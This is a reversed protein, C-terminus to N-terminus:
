KVDAAGVIEAILPKKKPKEEPPPNTALKLAKVVEPTPLLVDAIEMRDILEEEISCAELRDALRKEYKPKIHKEWIKIDDERRARDKKNLRIRVWYPVKNLGPTFIVAEGPRRQELEAPTVLPVKYRHTQGRERTIKEVEGCRDSIAKSTEWDNAEFYISTGMNAQNSQSEHKTMHMLLQAENQFAAVLLFWYSRYESLWQGMNPQTMSALEDAILVFPAERKLGSGCSAKVILDIAAAISPISIEEREKDVQFFVAKKGDLQLPIDDYILAQISKESMLQKIDLVSSGIVGAVTQAADAISRLGTSSLKAWIGLDGAENAIKLRAALGPLSLFAFAMVFDPFCTAKAFLCAVELAAKGQGGFFPDGSKKARGSLNEHYTNIVSYAGDVDSPSKMKKLPNLGDYPYVWVEYGLRMLHACHAPTLDGKKDYVLLTAGQEALDDIISSIASETKGGSSKGIIKCGPALTPLLVQTRNGHRDSGLGVAINPAKKSRMENVAKRRCCWIEFANAWRANGLVRHQSQMFRAFILLGAMLLYMSILKPTMLRGLMNDVSPPQQTPQQITAIYQNRM